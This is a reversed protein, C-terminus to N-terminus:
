ILAFYKFAATAKGQGYIGTGNDSIGAVANGNPALGLVGAKGQAQALGVVADNQASTGYVANGATNNTGKVAPIMKDKSLCDVPDISM